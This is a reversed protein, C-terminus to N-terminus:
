SVRKFEVDVQSYDVKYFGNDAEVVAWPVESAMVGQYRGEAGRYGFEYINVGKESVGVKKVDQKLRRDSFALFMIASSALGGITQYTAAKSQAKAQEYANNRAAQNAAASALGQQANVNVGQGISILSALTANNLDKQAIRADNVAQIRGLTGSTALGRQMQQRQAPTLNTGYREMSRQNVGQMLGVARESDTRANDILSTDNQAQNILEQEFAGFDRQREMYEDRTIQAYTAEPDSVTPLGYISLDEAEEAQRRSDRLRGRGM